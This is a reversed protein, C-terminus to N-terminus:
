AHRAPHWARGSPRTRPLAASPNHGVAVPASDLLKTDHFVLAM